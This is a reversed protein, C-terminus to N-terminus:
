KKSKSNTSKARKSGTAKKSNCGCKSSTPGLETAIEMQQSRSQSNRANTHSQSQRKSAQSTTKRM